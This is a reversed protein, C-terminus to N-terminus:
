IKESTPRNLLNMEIKTARSIEVKMMLDASTGHRSSKNREVPAFQLRVLVGIKRASSECTKTSRSDAVLVLQRGCSCATQWLFLSIDPENM